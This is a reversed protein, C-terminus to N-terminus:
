SDPFSVQLVLTISVGPVYVAFPPALGQLALCSCLGNISLALVQDCWLKSSSNIQQAFKCYTAVDWFDYYRISDSFVTAAILGRRLPRRGM